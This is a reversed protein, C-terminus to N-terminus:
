HSNSNQNIFAVVIMIILLPIAALRTLLATLVLIGCIIEFSGTFYARFPLNSFGTKAFRGTGVTDPILYKQIVESLFILGVVFRCLFAPVKFTQIIRCM